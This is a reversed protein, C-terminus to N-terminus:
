GGGNGPLHGFDFDLLKAALEQVHGRVREKLWGQMSYQLEKGVGEWVFVDREGEQARRAGSEPGGRLEM